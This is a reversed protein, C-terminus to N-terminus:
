TKTQKSESFLKNKFSRNSDKPNTQITIRDVRFRGMKKLDMDKWKM